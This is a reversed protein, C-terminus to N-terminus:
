SSSPPPAAHFSDVVFKRLWVSVVTGQSYDNAIRDKVEVRGSYREVVLAYVISLGLGSGQASDLYRTFAKSKVEDAMGKGYDAIAVKWYISSSSSDDALAVGDPNAIAKEESVKVDILVEGKPTYKVSNSLINIFVEDLLDDALVYADDDDKKADDLFTRSYREL